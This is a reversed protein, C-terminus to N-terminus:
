RNGADLEDGKQCGIMRYKSPLVIVPPESPKNVFWEAAIETPSAGYIQERATIQQLSAFVLYRNSSSGIEEADAAEIFRGDVTPISLGCIVIGNGCEVTGRVRWGIQSGKWGEFVIDSTSSSGGPYYAVVKSAGSSGAWIEKGPPCSAYGQVCSVGLCFAVLTSKLVCM